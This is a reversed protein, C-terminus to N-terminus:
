RPSCAEAGRLAPNLLPSLNPNLKFTNNTLRTAAPKGKPDQSLPMEYVLYRSYGIRYNRCVMLLTLSLIRVCLGALGAEWLRWWGRDGGSGAYQADGGGDACVAVLLRGSSQVVELVYGGGCPIVEM